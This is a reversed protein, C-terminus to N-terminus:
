YIRNGEPALRAGNDGTFLVFGSGMHMDRLDEHLRRRAEPQIEKLASTHIFIRFGGRGAARMTEALQQASGEDFVGALKLHVSSDSRHVIIEFENEALM